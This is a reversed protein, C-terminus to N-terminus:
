DAQIEYADVNKLFVEEIIEGDPGVINIFGSGVFVSQVNDFRARGGGDIYVIVYM